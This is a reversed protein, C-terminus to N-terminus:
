PLTITLKDRDRLAALNNDTSKYNTWNNALYKEIIKSRKAAITLELKQLFFLHTFLFKSNGIYLIYFLLGIGNPRKRHNNVSTVPKM